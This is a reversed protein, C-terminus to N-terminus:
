MKIQGKKIMERYKKYDTKRLKTVEDVSMKNGASIQVRDGGTQRELGKRQPAALGKEIRFAKAATNMNMGKNEPDNRYETFESWVEEMEPHSKIVKMKNLEQKVATVESKLQGEEEIDVQPLVEQEKLQEQLSKNDEELKKLREFNQSSVKAKEKLDALEERSISDDKPTEVAPEAEPTSTTEEVVPNQPTTEETKNEM